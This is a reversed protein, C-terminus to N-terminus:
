VYQTFNQINDCPQSEQHNVQYKVQTSRKGWVSTVKQPKEVEPIVHPHAEPTDVKKEIRM